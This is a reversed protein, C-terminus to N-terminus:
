ETDILEYYDNVDDNFLIRNEEHHPSGVILNIRKRTYFRSCWSRSLKYEACWKSFSCESRIVLHNTIIEDEYMYITDDNNTNTM